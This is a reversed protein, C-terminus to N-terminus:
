LMGRIAALTYHFHEPSDRLFGISDEFMYQLGMSIVESADYNYFKAVYKEKFGDKNAVEHPEYAAGLQEPRESHRLLAEMAFTKSLGALQKGYMDEM